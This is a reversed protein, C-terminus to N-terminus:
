NKRLKKICFVVSLIGIISIMFLIIINMIKDFTYPNVAPAPQEKERYEVTAVRFVCSADGNDSFEVRFTHAGLSLSDMFEQNFTIITTGEESVYYSPDVLQDDIYVKGDTEFLSYEANITFSAEINRTKVYEQNAGEIVEYVIKEAEVSITADETINTLSLTNGTIDDLMEVNNVKVSSLKYGTKPNIVIDKNSNYDVQVIGYDNLGVNTGSIDINYQIIKYKVVVTIDENGVLVDYTNNHVEVAYGNVTVMDIEYGEEPTFTITQTSGERVNSLSSSISGGPGNVSTTIDVYSQVYVPINVSIPTYNVSDNNQLYTAPYSQSGASMVTSPDNWSLGTTSLSLSSLSDNEAGVLGNTVESPISSEAPTISFNIRTSGQYNDGVYSYVVYYDGVNTPQAIEEDSSNYYTVTLDSGSINDNNESVTLDGVLFVEEGTYVVSQDSIGSITLLEKDSIEFNVTPTGTYNASIATVTVEADTGIDINNNYTVEYDVDKELTVGNAVVTVEPEKEEGDYIVYDYSLTIDEPQIEYPVINFTRHSNENGEDFSYNSSPVNRIQVTAVGLEVNDAYEVTYDTGPTLVNAGYRVTLEPEIASGTYSQDPIADIQALVDQSTITFSKVTATDTAYLGLGVVTVYAEGSEVNNVYSLVYDIGETLTQGGVIVTVQPEKATGDYEYTDDSLTIDEPKITIPLISATATFQYNALAYRKIVESSLTVVVDVSKDNEIDSDSFQATVTYDTGLELVENKVLGGFVVSEVTASRNGDYEKDSVVVDEITIDAKKVIVKYSTMAQSYNATESAWARITASGTGILTVAGTYPDVIAAETNNSTYSVIGDGVSLTATITFDDGYVKTIDEIPFTIVQDYKDTIPIEINDILGTYNNIGTVTAIISEGVVGNQNTFSITYDTGEVLTNNNATVVVNPTLPEGTYVVHLPADINASTLEYPVIDFYVTVPSFIYDSTPSSTVTISGQGLETNEGYSVSYDTKNNVLITDTGAIKVTVNPKIKSGTYFYEANYGTVEPIIQQRETSTIHIILDGSIKTVRYISNEQEKINKYSGTVSVVNVKYGNKTNVRFNVQGDGSIDIAGTDGDRVLTTDVDIEDPTTYDKTYYVDISDINSDYTFDVTYETAQKTVVTIEIDGTVKTIRYTNTHGTDAPGKVNKYNGSPSATVSSVIYGPKLNISFNVQGEGNEPIIEGTEPDRVATATVKSESPNLYNQTYYVDISKVGEDTSFFATTPDTTGKVIVDSVLTFSKEQTSRRATVSNIRLTVPYAGSPTNKDVKYKLTVLNTNKPIDMGAPDAVGAYGNKVDILSHDTDVTGLIDTLVLYGNASPNEETPFYNGDMADIYIAKKTYFSIVAEGDHEGDLIVPEMATIGFYSEDYVTDETLDALIEISDHSNILGNNNVDALVRQVASLEYYLENTESAFSRGILRSDDYDLVGDMNVDGDLAVYFIQSQAPSVRFSYVNGTVSEPTMAEFNEGDFSNIFEIKQDSTITIYEAIDSTSFDSTTDYSGMQVTAIDHTKNYFTFVIPDRYLYTKRETLGGHECQYTIVGPSDATAITTITGDDWDHGWPNTTVDIMEAIESVTAQDTLTPSSFFTYTSRKPIQDDFVVNGGDSIAVVDGAAFDTTSVIIKQSSGTSDVHGNDAVGGASFVTAGDIILRADRDLASNNGQADQHYIIQTGGYLYLSGNADLGDGECNVYLSGGYVYLAYNDEMEGTDPNFHEGHDHGSGSSAGGAANIGDDIAYVRIKGSYIYINGSEIGEIADLVNIEPDREFGNEEGIVLKTDAHIGDDGSQINITGKQINMYGDSHLADDSSDITIEGGYINITNSANETDYDNKSAKIGKASLVDSDFNLTNYGEFTYITIQGNYMTFNSNTQIGDQGANIDLKPWGYLEIDGVAQIGDELSNIVVRGGRMTLKATSTEDDENPELKIGEGNADIFVLGNNINIAGDCSLGNNEAQISIVGANINVTASEAGKIGNNHTSIASLYGSGEISLTSNSKVKIAAGEYLDAIVPDPSYENEPNENSTFSNNGVLKLTVEAGDKKVVFPATVASTIDLNDLILVVGTIGKRVEINGESSSGKLRYTGSQFIELSSGDIAYGHGAVTEEISDEQFTLVVTTDTAFVNLIGTFVFCLVLFFLYKILSCKKNFVTDM